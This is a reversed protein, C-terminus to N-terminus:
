GPAVRWVQQHEFVRGDRSELEVGRLALAGGKLGILEPDFLMAAAQQITGVPQMLELVRVARGFSNAETWDRMTLVGAMPEALEDPKLRMGHRRLQTITCQM